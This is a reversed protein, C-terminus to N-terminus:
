KRIPNKMERLHRAVARKLFISILWLPIRALGSKAYLRFSRAVVTRNGARRFEWTEEFRTALHSLPASFDMMQLRVRQNPQWEVIEECHSSMDRNTVRIRSGVIGPEFFEFEASKIGPVPGFGDFDSWRTVDLIMRAIEEPDLDLIDECTFKIPSM